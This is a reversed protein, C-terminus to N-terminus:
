RKLIRATGKITTDLFYGGIIIWFLQTLDNSLADTTGMGLVKDWVLLKNIYIIFPLAFGIRVWREMPDSQAAMITSKRAELLNIREDAAIREKDTTALLKSQYAEKLDNSISTLPGSFLSLILKLM